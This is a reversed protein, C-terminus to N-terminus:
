ISNHKFKILDKEDFIKFFVPPFIFKGIESNEYTADFIVWSNNLCLIPFVHHPHKNRGTVAIKYPIGKLKAYCCIILTKDDCDRPLNKEFISFLPRSLFEIGKPDAKYDLNKVIEFVEKPTKCDLFIVDTYYKNAFEFIKFITKEYTELEEIKLNM